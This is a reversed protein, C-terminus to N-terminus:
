MYRLDLNRYMMSDEPALLAVSGTDGRFYVGRELLEMEIGLAAVRGMKLMSFRLM